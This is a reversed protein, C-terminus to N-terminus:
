ANKADVEKRWKVYVEAIRMVLCMGAMGNYCDGCLCERCANDMAAKVTEALNTEASM